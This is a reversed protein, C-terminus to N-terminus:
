TNHCISAQLYSSKLSKSTKISNIIIIPTPIIPTPLTPINLDDHLSRNSVFWSSNTLLILNISQFAQLINLNSMKITGKLQIGYMMALRILQKYILVKNKLPMKSQFLPRLKHLRLSLSKRNTKIHTVWTLRRDLHFDLYKVSIDM